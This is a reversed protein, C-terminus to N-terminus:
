AGHTRLQQLHEVESLIIKEIPLRELSSGGVFGQIKTRSLVYQLDEPTEIPGGHCVCIVDPNAATAAKQWADLTKAAEGLTPVEKIGMIGGSTFGLDLCIMDCCEAMPAVDEQTYAFGLTFLGAAKQAALFAREAPVGLKAVDDMTRRFMSGVLNGVSPTNAVGSIGMKRYDELLLAIDKHPDSCGVGALVPVGQCVKLVEALLRKTISNCDGNALLSMSSAHGDMRFRGESCALLLDVGAMAEVKASLGSGVSGVIIAQGAGIKKQLRSRIEEPTIQNMM